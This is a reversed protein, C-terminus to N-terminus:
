TTPEVTYYVTIHATGTGAAFDNTIKSIVMAANENTPPNAATSTGGFFITQQSRQGASPGTFVTNAALAQAMTGVAFSVAGGADTYATGGLLRVLVSMPVIMLGPGPAPILSISATKITLIQASTLFIDARLPTYFTSQIQLQTDPLYAGYKSLAAPITVATAM